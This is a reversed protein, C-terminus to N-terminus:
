WRERSALPITRGLPELRKALALARSEDLGHQQLFAAQTGLPV